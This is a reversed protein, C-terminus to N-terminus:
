EKDVNVQWSGVSSEQSGAGQSSECFDRWNRLEAKREPEICHAQHKETFGKFISSSTAASKREETFPQQISPLQQISSDLDFDLAPTVSFQALAHKVAAQVFAYIIKEDEFKIEQKTPHVNVD